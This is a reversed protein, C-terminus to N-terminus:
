VLNSGPPADIWATWIAWEEAIRGDSALRSINIGNALQLGLDPSTRTARIRSVVRAGAVFREVLEFRASPNADRYARIWGPYAAADREGEALHLMHGRYDPSVLSPIAATPAGNWVDLLSALAELDKM